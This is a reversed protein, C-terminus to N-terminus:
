CGLRPKALYIINVYLWPIYKVTVCEPENFKVYSMTARLISIEKNKM